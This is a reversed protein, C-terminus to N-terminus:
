PCSGRAAAGQVPDCMSYSRESSFRASRSGVQVSVQLRATFMQSSPGVASPSTDARLVAVNIAQGGADLVGRATLAQSLGAQAPFFPYGLDPWIRSGPRGQCGLLFDLFGNYVYSFCDSLNIFLGALTSVCHLVPTKTSSHKRSAGTLTAAIEVALTPKYVQDFSNM